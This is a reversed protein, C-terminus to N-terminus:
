MLRGAKILFYEGAILLILGCLQKVRVMWVGSKPMRGLLGSFTGVLILSAGVGYSFVFLLSVAHVINKQSAVYLLLTGLIPAACPSVVLGSAAGFLLIMWLNRPRLKNVISIGVAPVPIVDFLVLSFFVLLNGIMLFVVPNNQIHGFVTGSLAAMAGLTCYTIALGLVYVLSIFFGQLRTGKTNLGAIFGATIPMVPYVCPSFSVLVGAWFVIFYDFINGSLVM